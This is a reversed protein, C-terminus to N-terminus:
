QGRWQSFADEQWAKMTPSYHARPPQWAPRPRESAPTAAADKLGLAGVYGLYASQSDSAGGFAPLAVKPGSPAEEAMALVAPGSPSAGAGPGRARLEAVSIARSSSPSSDSVGASLPSAGARAPTLASGPGAPRQKPIACVTQLGAAPQQMMRDFHVCWALDASAYKTGTTADLYVLQGPRSQSPRVTFGPPLEGDTHAGLPALQSDHRYLSKQKPEDEIYFRATLVDQSGETRVEVLRAVYWCGSTSSFIELVSGENWAQRARAEEADRASQGGRAAAAGPPPRTVGINQHAPADAYPASSAPRHEQYAPTSPGPRHPSAAPLDGLGGAGGYESGAASARSFCRSPAAGPRVPVDQQSRLPSPVGLHPPPPAAGLHSAADFESAYSSCRTGGRPASLESRCSESAPRGRDLAVGWSDCDHGRPPDGGHDDASSHRGCDGPFSGAGAMSPLRTSPPPDADHMRDRPVQSYDFDFRPPDVSAHRSPATIMPPDFTHRSEGAWLGDDDSIRAGTTVKSSPMATYEEVEPQYGGPLGRDPAYGTAATQGM